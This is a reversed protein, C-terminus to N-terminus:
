GHKKLLLDVCLPLFALWGCVLSITRYRWGLPTFHTRPRWYFAALRTSIGEATRQREALVRFVLGILLGIVFLVIAPNTLMKWRLDESSCVAAAQWQLVCYLSQATARLEGFIM